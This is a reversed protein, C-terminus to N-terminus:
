IQRSEYRSLLSYLGHLAGSSFRDANNKLYTRLEAMPVFDLEKTELEKDKSTKYLEAFQEITFHNSFRLKVYCSIGCELRDVDISLDLFGYQQIHANYAESLGLEEKLGRYLCSVLSPNGYMDVDLMSFAENMSFHLKDRDVIVNAGRHAVIMYEQVGDSALIYCGLGFSSLFHPIANIAVINQLCFQEKYKQYIHAFVRYTFYDTKYFDISLAANEHEGSRNLGIHDVGFLYGNFRIYGNRLDALFQNAVEDAAAALITDFSDSLGLQEVAARLVEERYAAQDHFHFGLRQLEERYAQPIPVIFLQGSNRLHMDEEDYQPVAHDIPMYGNDAKFNAVKLDDRIKLARYTSIKKATASKVFDILTNTLYGIIAGIIGSLVYENMIEDIAECTYAARLQTDQGNQRTVRKRRHEAPM